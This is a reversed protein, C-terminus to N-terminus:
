FKGRGSSHSHGGRSVGGKFGGSNIGGTRTPQNTQSTPKKVKTVKTRIYYDRRGILGSNSPDFYTSSGTTITGGSSYAMVSVVIAGIILSIVLQFLPDTLLRETKNYNNDYGNNYYSGHNPPTYTKPSGDYNYNYNHDYNLETEDVMYEASSKIFIEFATYYDGNTLYPSIETIINDIRKSHIYTEAEGYGHIIVDRNYMDVLLIASDRPLMTDYFDEIYYDGDPANGDKHTLIIIEIDAEDGYEICMDELKSLDSTSLLGAKDYIHQNSEASEVAKINIKAILILPILSLLLIL